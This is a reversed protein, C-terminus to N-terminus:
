RGAPQFGAAEIAAHLTEITRREAAYPGLHLVQAARGEAFAEM